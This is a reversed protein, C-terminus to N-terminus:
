GSRLQPRLAVAVCDFSGSCVTRDVIVFPIRVSHIPSNGNANRSTGQMRPDKSETVVAGM